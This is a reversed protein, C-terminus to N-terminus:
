ESDNDTIAEEAMGELSLTAPEIGAPRVLNTEDNCPTLPLLWSSPHPQQEYTKHFRDSEPLGLALVYVVHVIQSYETRRCHYSSGSRM